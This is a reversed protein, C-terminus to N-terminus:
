DILKLAESVLQSSNMNGAGEVRRLAESSESGSFGLAELVSLAEARPSSAPTGADSFKFSEASPAEGSVKGKLEVIIKQATRAGIGKAASIPKPDESAIAFKLEDTGVSSLIGLAAKPGVGSVTLLLTFMELEAASLFGFLSIGDDRVSMHIHVKLNGDGPKISYLAPAPMFIKYGIGNNDLIIFNEGIGAATGTIYSIM